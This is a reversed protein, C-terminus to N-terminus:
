ASNEETRWAHLSYTYTLFYVAFMLGTCPDGGAFNAIAVMLNSAAWILFGNCSRRTVLWQGAFFSLISITAITASMQNDGNFRL